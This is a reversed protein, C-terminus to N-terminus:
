HLNAATETVYCDYLCVGTIDLNADEGVIIGGGDSDNCGGAFVGGKLGDYARSKPRSDAITSPQANDLM